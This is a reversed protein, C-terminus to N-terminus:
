KSIGAHTLYKRTEELVKKQLQSFRGKVVCGSAATHGGGGFRQALANVDVRGKSRFSIKVRNYKLKRFLIAIKVSNISRPYAVIDEDSEYKEYPPVSVWAIKGDATTKINKLVCGISRLRKLTNNEYIKQAVEEPRVGYELLKAVLRHTRPTTNMYRFAGTDTLIATYLCIAWRKKIEIKLHDLLMIIEEAVASANTDVWNIHGFRANSIHHDINIIVQARDAYEKIRGLRALTPTDLVFVAEPKLNDKIKTFIKKSGPLFAYLEPVPTDNLAIAKKGMLRLLELFVIESGIADGDPHIHTTVLFSKRERIVSAIQRLV